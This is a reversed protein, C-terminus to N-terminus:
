EVAGGSLRRQLARHAQDLHDLAGAVEEADADSRALVAEAEDAPALAQEVGPDGPQPRPPVRSTGPEPATASM